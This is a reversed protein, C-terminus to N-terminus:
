CPMQLLILNIAANGSPLSAQYSLFFDVFAQWFDSEVDGKLDARYPPPNIVEVNLSAALNDANYSEGEGRDAILKQPLYKSPWQAETINIEYRRCYEVKDTAVNELALMMNLWSANEINAVYGTIMKSFVDTCFYVTARGIPKGTLYSRLHVNAPTADIEFCEGPGSVM